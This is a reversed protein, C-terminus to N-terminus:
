DSSEMVGHENSISKDDDDDDDSIEIVILESQQYVGPLHSDSYPAQDDNSTNMEDPLHQPRAQYDSPIDKDDSSIDIDTVQTTDPQHSIRRQLADRQHLSGVIQEDSQFRHLNLEDRLIKLERFRRQTYEGFVALMGKLTCLEMYVPCTAHSYLNYQHDQSKQHLRRRVSEIRESLLFVQHCALRFKGEERRYYAVTKQFHPLSHTSSETAMAKLVCLANVM